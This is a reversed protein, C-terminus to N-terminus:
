PPRFTPPAAAEILERAEEEAPPKPCDTAEPKCPHGERKYDPRLPHEKGPPLHPGHELKRHVRKGREKHDPHPHRGFGRARAGRGRWTTHALRGGGMTTRIYKGPRSTHAM